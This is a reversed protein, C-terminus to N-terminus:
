DQVTGPQDHKSVDALHRNKGIVPTTSPKPNPNPNPNPNGTHHKTKFLNAQELSSNPASRTKPNFSVHAGVWLM